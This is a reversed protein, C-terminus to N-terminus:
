KDFTNKAKEGMGRFAAKVAEMNFYIKYGLLRMVLLILCIIIIIIILIVWFSSVGKEIGDVTITYTVNDVEDESICSIKVVSSYALKENDLITCKTNPDETEYDIELKDEGKKLIIKYDLVNKEFKFEKHNKITLSKLDATGGMEEEPLRTVRLTYTNTIAPCAKSKVLITIEREINVELDQEEKNLPTFEKMYSINDKM